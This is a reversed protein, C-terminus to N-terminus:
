FLFRMQLYYAGIGALYGILALWSMKKLYWMFSIGELGMVVVGAASGIILISGGVGACYALLLWFLGDHAFSAMYAPDAATAIMSADAVPYMGMAGAVLPVNDVISSLGGILANTLYVNHVKDDLFQAVARLVGTEQLVAVSMLIGLFFLITPMDIHQIVRSVRQKVSEDMKRRNKYIIETYIWLVSLALLIGIFPPLGTLARFIPVFILGGVGICFIIMRERRSIRPYVLDEVRDRFGQVETRHRLRFSLYIVPVLVSVLSPIFIKTITPVTTINGKIWLMITTVDGIPSFAGGANAALIVVGAFIWRLKKYAVLKRLVMIMVIATTLNDLIASLIFTASSVIWLLYLMNRTTIRNNVFNFGGHKDILEVITMAGMLFLIIEAIEAVHELISHEVVFKNIQESFSLSSLGHEAIFQNFAAANYIPVFHEANLVYITWLIVSLCLATATKNIKFHDETTILAYGLIFITVIFFVTMM